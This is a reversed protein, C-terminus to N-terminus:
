TRHRMFVLSNKDNFYIRPMAYEDEPTYSDKKRNNPVACIFVKKGFSVYIPAHNYDVIVDYCNEEKDFIVLPLNHADSWYFEKFEPSNLSKNEQSWEVLMAEITFDAFSFAIKDM